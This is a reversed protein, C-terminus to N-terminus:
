PGGYRKLRPLPSHVGAACSRCASSCASEATQPQGGRNGLLAVMFVGPVGLGEQRWRLTSSVTAATSSTITSIRSKMGQYCRPRRWTRRSEGEMEIGGTAWPGATKQHAGKGTAEGRSRFHTVFQRFPRDPQRIRARRGLPRNSCSHMHPRSPFRFIGPAIWQAAARPPGVVPFVSMHCDVVDRM